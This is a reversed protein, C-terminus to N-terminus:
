SRDEQVRAGYVRVQTSYTTTTAKDAINEDIQRAKVAADLAKGDIEEKLILALTDSDLHEALIGLDFKRRPREEVAVRKGDATEVFDIGASQLTAVFEAEVAKKREAVLREEERIALFAETVENIKTPNM